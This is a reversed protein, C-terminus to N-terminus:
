HRGREGGEGKMLEQVQPVLHITPSSFFSRLVSLANTSASYSAQATTYHVCFHITHNCFMQIVLPLQFIVVSSGM